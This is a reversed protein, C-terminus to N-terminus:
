LRKKTERCRLPRSLRRDEKIKKLATLGDMGPLQIDMLILDPARESVLRIGKEADEAEIVEYKELLLLSRM